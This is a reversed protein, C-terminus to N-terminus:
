YHSSSARALAVSLLRILIALVAATIALLVTWAALDAHYALRDALEDKLWFVTEM